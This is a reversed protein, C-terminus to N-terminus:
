RGTKKRRVDLPGTEDILNRLKGTPSWGESLEIENLLCAKTESIVLATMSEKLIKILLRHEAQSRLDAASEIIRRGIAKHQDLLQRSPQISDPRPVDTHFHRAKTLLYELQYGVLDNISLRWQSRPLRSYEHLTTRIGPALNRMVPKNVMVKALECSLWARVLHEFADISRDVLRTVFHQFSTSSHNM